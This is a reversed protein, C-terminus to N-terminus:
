DEMMCAIFNGLVIYETFEEETVHPLRKGIEDYKDQTELLHNWFLESQHYKLELVRLAYEHECESYFGDLDLKFAQRCTEALETIKKMMLKKKM